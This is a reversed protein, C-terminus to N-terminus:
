AHSQESVPRWVCHGTSRHRGNRGDSYSAFHVPLRAQSPRGVSGRHDDRAMRVHVQSRPRALTMAFICSTSSRRVTANPTSSFGHLALRLSRVPSGHVDPARAGHSSRICALLIFLGFPLFISLPRSSVSLRHSRRVAIKDDNYTGRCPDMGMGLPTPAARQAGARHSSDARSSMVLSTLHTQTPALLRQGNLNLSSWHAYRSHPPLLAGHMGTDSFICKTRSHVRCQRCIPVSSALTHSRAAGTGVDSLGIRRAGRSDGPGAHKSHCLFADPHVQLCTGQPTAIM